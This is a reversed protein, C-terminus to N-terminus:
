GFQTAMAGFESSFVLSRLDRVEVEGGEEARVWIRRVLEDDKLGVLLPMECVGVAGFM